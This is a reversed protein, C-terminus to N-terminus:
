KYIDTKFAKKAFLCRVAYYISYAKLSTSFIFFLIAPITLSSNPSVQSITIFCIDTWTDIQAAIGCTLAFFFWFVNAFGMEYKQYQRIFFIIDIIATAFQFLFMILHAPYEHGSECDILLNTPLFICLMWFILEHSLILIIMYKRSRCFLVLKSTNGNEETSINM